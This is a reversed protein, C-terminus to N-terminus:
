RKGLFGSRLREALWFLFIAVFSLIFVEGSFLFAQTAASM